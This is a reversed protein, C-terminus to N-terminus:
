LEEFNEEAIITDSNDDADLEEADNVLKELFSQNERITNRVDMLLKELDDPVAQM